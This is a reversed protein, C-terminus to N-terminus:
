PPAPLRMLGSSLSCAANTTPDLHFLSDWALVGNFVRGLSLSRMDAVRWTQQPLRADCLDIMEPASDIGTLECGREALCVGIPEGSGRGIDLVTPRPPLLDLFRDVWSAEMPRNGHPRGRAAAWARAHRRYLGIIREADESIVAGGRVYREPVVAHSATEPCSPLGKTAAPWAHREADSQRSCPM